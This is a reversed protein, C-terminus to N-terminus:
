AECQRTRTEISENLKRLATKDDDLIVKIRRDFEQRGMAKALLGLAEDLFSPPLSDAGNLNVTILDSEALAPKIYDERFREGSTESEWKYRGSPCEDFDLILTITKM